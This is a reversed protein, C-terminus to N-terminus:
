RAVAVVADNSEISPGSGLWPDKIRLDIEGTFVCFHGRARRWGPDIRLLIGGFNSVPSEIEARAITLGAPARHSTTPGAGPEPLSHRRGRGRRSCRGERGRPPRFAPDVEVFEGPVPYDDSSAHASRGVPLHVMFLRRTSWATAAAIGSPAVPDLHHPCAAAGATPAARGAERTRGPSRAPGGVGAPLLEAPLDPALEGLHLRREGNGTLVRSLAGQM